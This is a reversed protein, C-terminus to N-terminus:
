SGLAETILDTIELMIESHWDAECDFSDGEKIKKLVKKLDSETKAKSLLEAVDSAIFAHEDVECDWHHSRETDGLIKIAKKAVKGVNMTKGM